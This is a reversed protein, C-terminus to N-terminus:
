RLRRDSYYGERSRVILNRFERPANEPQAVKVKISRWKPKGTVPLPKFGIRYQSRLEQALIQFAEGVQEKKNVYFAKGGTAETLETLVAQSELGLPSPDDPVLAVAYLMIDSEKLSERVETFTYRSDNDQGDTVLILARKGYRGTKVKEIGLYLSDYLATQSPRDKTILRALIGHIDTTWDVVIVPRSAFAMIFYENSKNSENLFGDFFEVAYRATKKGRMSSSMDLIVGISQPEDENSFSTIERPTKDDMVTFSEKSLGSLPKLRKNTVTVTLVVEDDDTKVSATKTQAATHHPSFQPVASYAAMLLLICILLSRAPAERSLRM